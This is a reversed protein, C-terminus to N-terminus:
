GNDSGEWELAQGCCDCFEQKLAVEAGCPCIYAEVDYEYIDVFPKQPIQKGLAEKAEEIAEDRKYVDSCPAGTKLKNLENIAEQKKM